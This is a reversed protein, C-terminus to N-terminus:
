MKPKIKRQIIVGHLQTRTNETTPKNLSLDSTVYTMTTWWSSPLANRVRQAVSPSPLNQLFGGQETTEECLASKAWSRLTREMHQPAALVCISM